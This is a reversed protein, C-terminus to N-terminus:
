MPARPAASVAPRAAPRTGYAPEAGCSWGCGRSGAVGGTTRSATPSGCTSRRGPSARAGGRRARALRPELRRHDAADGRARDRWTTGDTSVQVLFEAAPRAAALRRHRGRPDPLPLHLLARQRRLARATSQRRAAFRGADYLWPEEADTGPTFEVVDGVVNVNASARATAGSSSTATFEIPYTGLETGPPVAVDFTASDSDGNGLPGFPASAPQSAGARRAREGDGPREPQADGWNFVEVSVTATEGARAVGGQAEAELPRAAREEARSCSSRPRADGSRRRRVRDPLAHLQRTTSSSRGRRRAGTSSRAAASTSCRGSAATTRLGERGLQEPRRGRRRGVDAHLLAGERPGVFRTSSGRSRAPSRRARAPRTTSCRRRTRTGPERDRRGARGRRDRRAAAGPRRRRRHDVAARREQADGLTSPAPGM